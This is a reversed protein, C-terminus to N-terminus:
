WIILNKWKAVGTAIFIISRTLSRRGKSQLTSKSDFPDTCTTQFNESIKKNAETSKLLNSATSSPYIEKPGNVFSMDEISCVQKYLHKKDSQIKNKICIACNKKYEDSCMKCNPEMNPACRCFLACNKGTDDSILAKRQADNLAVGNLTKIFRVTTEVFVNQQINWPDLIFDFPTPPAYINAEGNMFNKPLTVHISEEIRIEKNIISESLADKQLLESNTFSQVKKIVVSELRKLKPLPIDSMIGEIYIEIAGLDTFIDQSKGHSFDMSFNGLHFFFVTYGIIADGIIQHVANKCFVLNEAGVLNNRKSDEPLILQTNNKLVLTKIDGLARVIQWHVDRVHFDEISKFTNNMISINMKSGDFISMVAPVIKVRTAEIGAIMLFKKEVTCHSVIILGPDELSKTCNCHSEQGCPFTDNKELGHSKKLLSNIGKM